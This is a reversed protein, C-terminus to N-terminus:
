RRTSTHHKFKSLDLWIKNSHEYCTHCKSFWLTWQQHREKHSKCLSGVIPVTNSTCACLFLLLCSLLSGFCILSHCTRGISCVFCSLDLVTFLVSSVLFFLTRILFHHSIITTKSRKPRSPAELINQVSNRFFCWLIDIQQKPGRKIAM